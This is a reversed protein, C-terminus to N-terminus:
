LSPFEQHDLAQLKGPSPISNPGTQGGPKPNVSVRSLTNDPSTVWINGCDECFWYNWGIKELNDGLCKPCAAHWGNPGTM